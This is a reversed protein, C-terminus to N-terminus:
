IGGHADHGKQEHLLLSNTRTHVLVRLLTYKCKIRSQRSCSKNSALRTPATAVQDRAAVAAATTTAASAARRHFSHRGVVAAAPLVMSCNCGCDSSCLHPDQLQGHPVAHPTFEPFSTYREGGLYM